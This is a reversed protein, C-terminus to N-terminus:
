RSARLVARGEPTTTTEPGHAHHPGDPRRDDRLHRQQHLDRHGPDGDARRSSKPSASPRSTATARTASRRDLRPERTKHGLAVAPARGHAAQTNGVDFYYYMFVSCGVPSVAVTRDQIGLEDIAEALYKHALGHGCGPCYDDRAGESGRRPRPTRLARLLGRTMLAGGGARGSVPRRDGAAAPADRRMRRVHSRDAPPRPCRRPQSGPPARGGAPGRQSGGCRDARCTRCRSRIGRDPLAVADRGSCGAKM